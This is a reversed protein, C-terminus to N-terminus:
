KLTIIKSIKRIKIRSKIFHLICKKYFEILSIFIRKWWKSSKRLDSYYSEMQHAKDLEAKKLNYISIANPREIKKTRAQVM